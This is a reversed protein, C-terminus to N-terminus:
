PWRPARRSSRSWSAPATRDSGLGVLGIFFLLALPPHGAVHVTWNQPHDYDIRAVYDHLLASIDTVSQATALYDYPHELVHAVGDTGRVHVLSLLWAVGVVYSLALLPRWTLREALGGAYLLALLAVILAPITGPGFWQPSWTGHLPPVSIGDAGSSRAVVDWGTLGPVAMAVVVLLLATLLGLRARVTSSMSLSALGGSWPVRCM